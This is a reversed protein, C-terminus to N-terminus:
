PVTVVCRFGIGSDEYIPSDYLRATFVGAFNTYDMRGGRLLAGGSVDNGPYYQGISKISNWSNDIAVQPILDTLPMTTTGTLDTFEDWANGVPTPKEKDNFYSTWEWVNGALDWIVEGNSLTHTRRQNFTGSASGTCDTEVYANSDSADAACANAPNNDSHGRAMENTGVVEGEWNTAQEAVNTAITMWEDNTILHYGKGLSACETASDQQNISVWPIDAATSTPVGSNNKAEYKMVCFDNTGYDPDGPVLIWTGFPISSCDPSAGAAGTIGFIEASDLINAEIIDADGAATYRTGKQDWFEMLAATKVHTSFNSNKLDVAGGADMGSLDMSAYTATTICDDQGGATCNSHTELAVSGAVGGVTQGTMVKAALGSNSAAQYSGAVICGTQGDETCVPYNLSATGEIDGISIGSLINEAKYNADDVFCADGTSGLDAINNEGQSGFLISDSICESEEGFIDRFKAYVTALGDVFDLGWQRSDSLIAEWQGGTSCEASNTLYVHSVISLANLKVPEASNETSTKGDAVAISINKFSDAKCPIDFTFSPTETYVYDSKKKLVGPLVVAPIMRICFNISVTGCVNKGSANDIIEKYTPEEEQYDYDECANSSGALLLSAGTVMAPASFEAVTGEPPTFEFVKEENAYMDRLDQKSANGNGDLATAQEFGQLDTINGSADKTILDEQVIEELEGKQELHAIQEESVGNVAAFGRTTSDMQKCSIALTLLGSISVLSNLSM